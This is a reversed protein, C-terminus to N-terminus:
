INERADFNTTKRYLVNKHVDFNTTKRHLVNKHVDVNKNQKRSDYQVFSILQYKQQCKLENNLCLFWGHFRHFNLTGHFTIIKCYMYFAMHFLHEFNFKVTCHEVM